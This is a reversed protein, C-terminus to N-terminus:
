IDPRTHLMPLVIANKGSNTLPRHSLPHSLPRSHSATHSLSRGSFASGFFACGLLTLSFATLSFATHSLATHSLAMPLSHSPLTLSPTFSPIPSCASPAIVLGFLPCSFQSVHSVLRSFLFMVHLVTLVQAAFFSSNLPHTTASRSCAFLRFLLERSSVCLFSSTRCLFSRMQVHACRHRRASSTRCLILSSCAAFLVAACSRM